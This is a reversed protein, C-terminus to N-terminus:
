LLNAIKVKGERTKDGELMGSSKNLSNGKKIFSGPNMKNDFRGSRKESLVNLM